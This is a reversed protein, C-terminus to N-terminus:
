FQYYYYNYYYYYYHHYNHNNFTSGEGPLRYSSSGILLTAHHHHNKSLINCHFLTEHLSSKDVHGVYFVYVQKILYLYGRLQYRSSEILLTSHAPSNADM